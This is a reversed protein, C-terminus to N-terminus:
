YSPARLRVLLLVVVLLLMLSARRVLVRVLGTAVAEAVGAAGWLVGEGMAGGAACHVGKGGGTPGRRHLVALRCM